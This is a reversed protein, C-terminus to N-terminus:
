VRTRYVDLPSVFEAALRRSGPMGPAAVDAFTVTCRIVVRVTGVQGAPVQFGGTDVTVSLSACHLHQEALSSRATDHAAAQAAAPTRALSAARAAAHAAEEISGGAIEVRMGIVALAILALLPPALIVTELAASGDDRRWRRIM